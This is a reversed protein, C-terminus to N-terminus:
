EKIITAFLIANGTNTYISCTNIVCEIHTRGTRPTTSTSHWAAKESKANPNLPPHPNKFNAHQLHVIIEGTHGDARANCTVTTTNGGAIKYTLFSAGMTCQMFNTQMWSTIRSHNEITANVRASNTYGSYAVIGVAALIGIIAVVVLLEILSFGKNM